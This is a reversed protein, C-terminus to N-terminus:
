KQWEAPSFWPYLYTDTIFNGRVPYHFSGWYEPPDHHSVPVSLAQQNVQWYIEGNSAKDRIANVRVLDVIEGRALYDQKIMRTEETIRLLLESLVSRVKAHEDDLLDRSFVLNVEKGFLPPLKQVIWDFPLSETIYSIMGALEPYHVLIAPTKITLVNYSIQGIYDKIFVIPCDYKIQVRVWDESQSQFFSLVDSDETLVSLEKYWQDDTNTPVVKYQVMVESFFKEVSHLVQLANQKIFDVCNRSLPRFHALTNRVSSIEDLKLRIVEKAGSFYKRFLTWHADSTIFRILEGTTLYMMSCSVPNRLYGYKEEQNIRRKAISAITAQTGADSQIPREEWRERYKCKLVVYVFVRLSNEIKFLTNLADYYHFKLWEFPIDYKGDKKTVIKWQM